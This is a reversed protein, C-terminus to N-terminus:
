SHACSDGQKGCGCCTAILSVYLYSTVNTINNIQCSFANQREKSPFHTDTASTPIKLTRQPDQTVPTVTLYGPAKRPAWPDSLFSRHSGLGRRHGGPGSTLRRGRGLAGWSIHRRAIPGLAILWGITSQFRRLQLGLDAQIM